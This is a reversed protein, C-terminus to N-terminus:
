HCTPDGMYTLSRWVAKPNAHAEPRASEAVRDTKEITGARAAKQMVAGLARPERVRPIREWVDDTTFEQRERALQRVATMAAVKWELDASRDARDIGEQAAARAAPLDRVEDKLELLGADLLKGGAKTRWGKCGTTACQQGDAMGDIPSTAGCRDCALCSPQRSSLLVAQREPPEGEAFLDRCQQCTDEGDRVATNPCLACKRPAPIPAFDCPEFDPVFREAVEAVAPDDPDAPPVDGLLDRIRRKVFGPQNLMADVTLPQGDITPAERRARAAATDGNTCGVCLERAPDIMVGCQGPCNVWPAPLSAGLPQEGEAKMRDIVALADPLTEATLPPADFLSPAEVVSPPPDAPLGVGDTTTRADHAPSEEAPPAPTEEGTADAPKGPGTADHGGGLGTTATEAVAEAVARRHQAAQGCTAFHSVFGHGGYLPDTIAGVIARVTGDPERVLRVNGDNRMAADVPMRKGTETVAWVIHESCTSCKAVRGWPSRHPHQCANRHPEGANPGEADVHDIGQRQNVGAVGTTTKVWRVPSSCVKCRWVRDPDNPPFMSPRAAAATTAKAM